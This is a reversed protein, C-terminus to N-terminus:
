EESPALSAKAPYAREFEEVNIRRRGKEIVLGRGKRVVRNRVLMTATKSGIEMLHGFRTISVTKRNSQKM